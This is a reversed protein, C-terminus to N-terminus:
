RLIGLLERYDDFATARGAALAATLERTFEPLNILIQHPALGANRYAEIDSARNGIGAAIPVTLARLAATKFAVTRKGPLTVASRALRLPGPPFGHVRLWLRTLETYQDGRATVYVVQHKSASLVQPALPQHGIDDGFLVSNFVANESETITGDVDTIVLQAGAPAVYAVFRVGSGDGPVHAYLDRMGVPLRADGQLTLEFRGDGNTRKAGLWRWSRDVCAFLEVIEDELDKDAATYALKGGLTQNEDGEMAILDIGRHRPEGLGAFFGSRGHRFASRSGEPANECGADTISSKPWRARQDATVDAHMACGASLALLLLLSRM